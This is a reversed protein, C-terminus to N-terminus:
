RPRSARPCTPLRRWNGWATTGFRSFAAHAGATPPRYTRADGAVMKRLLLAVNWAYGGAAAAPYVEYFNNPRSFRKTTAAVRPLVTELGPTPWIGNPGFLRQMDICLHVANPSLRFEQNTSM